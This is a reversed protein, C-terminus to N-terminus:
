LDHYRELWHHQVGLKKSIRALYKLCAEETGEFLVVRYWELDDILKAHKPANDRSIFHTDGLMIHYVWSDGTLWTEAYEFEGAKYYFVATVEFPPSKGQKWDVSVQVARNLDVLKGDHTEVQM